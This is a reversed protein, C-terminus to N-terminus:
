PMPIDSFEFPVTIDKSDTTVEWVLKAPEGTEDGGENRGRRYFMMSLKAENGNNASSQYGQYTLERDESDMCRIVVSSATENFKQQDTGDRYIVVQAVYQRGSGDNNDTQPKLSMLTMRRGSPTQQSQEKGDTIDNFKVSEVRTAVSFRNKGRLRVIKTGANKSPYTLNFGISIQAQPVNMANMGNASQEKPLLSNGRDDVAELILPQYSYGSVRVKPEFMVNMQGNFYSQTANNSGFSVSNQRSLTTLSSMVAGNVSSPCSLPTFGVNATPMFLMQKGPTGDFYPAIQGKQCVDRLADWFPTANFAVSIKPPESGLQKWIERSYPRLSYGVQKSMAALVDDLKANDLKLTILSPAAVKNTEIASIVDEATTRPRVFQQLAGLAPDGLQTLRFKADAVKAPDPDALQDILSQIEDATASATTPSAATPVLPPEVPTQANLVAALALSMGAAWRWRSATPSLNLRRTM